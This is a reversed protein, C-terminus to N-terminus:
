PKHDVRNANEDALYGAMSANPVHQLRGKYFDDRLSTWAQKLDDVVKTAPDGNVLATVTLNVVDKFHRENTFDFGFTSDYGVYGSDPYM